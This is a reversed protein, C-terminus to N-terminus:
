KGKRNVLNAMSLKGGYNGATIERLTGQLALDVALLTECLRHLLQKAHLRTANYNLPKFQSPLPHRKLFSAFISVPATSIVLKGNTLSKFLVNPIFQISGCFNKLPQRTQSPV